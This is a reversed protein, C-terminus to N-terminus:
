QKIKSKYGAIGGLITGMWKRGKNDL